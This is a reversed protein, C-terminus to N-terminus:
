RWGLADAVEGDLYDIQKGEGIYVIGDCDVVHEIDYEFPWKPQEALRVPMEDDFGTLYEILEGVTM